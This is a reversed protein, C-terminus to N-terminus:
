RAKGKKKKIVLFAAVSCASLVSAATFAVWLGLNQNDGTKSYPTSTRSNVLKLTGSITFDAGIRFRYRETVLGYGEPAKVETFYYEGPGPSVFYIRGKADSVGQGLYRNSADYFALQAGSLPKGSADVKKIVVTGYPVNTIRTDGEVSGDAKIKFVFEEENLYYGDCGITEKFVYTGKDLTYFYIRGKSDTKQKFVLERKDATEDTVKYVSIECGSLPIGTIADTKTIVVTGGHVNPIETDGEIAGEEGVNIIYESSSALYGNPAKQEIISYQHGPLSNFSFYGNEDTTVIQPELLPVAKSSNILGKDVIRFEAGALGHRDGADYKFMRILHPFQVMQEADETDKHEAVLSQGLMLSEFVVAKKGIINKADFRFVVEIMGDAERPAFETEAIIPNGGPERLIGHTEHDMLTGIMKYTLGPVLNKYTVTDTITIDTAGYELPVTHTGDSSKVSTRISPFHISQSEDGIETHEAVKRGSQYLTEFAVLTNETLEGPNIQDPTLIFVMQAQGDAQEPVFTTTATIHNANSDRYPQGTKKDMLVGELEYSKGPILNRYEVQDTLTIACLTGNTDFTGPYSIHEGTDATLTTGIAPFVVTQDFDNIDKHDTVVEGKYYLTEFAVITHGALKESGELSFVVDVTGESEKAAFSVEATIPTGSANLLESNTSKDMLTAVLKYDAISSPFLGHYAVTDVIVQTGSALFDKEGNQGAFTTHIDPIYVTQDEDELDAHCCVIYGNNSVEEFAVIATGALNVGNFLFTLEVSGTGSPEAVFNKSATIEQGEADKAKEGTKKDMLTGNMTYTKGPQLGSYTVTDTLTIESEAATIHSDDQSLLTTAINPITITQDLDATDKHEAIVVSNRLLSEFATLAGSALKSADFIFEIDVSGNTEEARFEKEATIVISKGETSLPARGTLPDVMEGRITYTTGPLLNSYSVTDIIVIDSEAPFEKEDNQGHALTRIRPFHVTEDENDLDSCLYIQVNDELLEVVSVVTKGELESADFTYSLTAVGDASDPRFMGTTATVPDGNDVIPEGTSQDVLTGKIEYSKEIRLAYYNIKDDLTVTGAYAIHDNADHDLMETIINPLPNNDVTGVDIIQGDLTIEIEFSVLEYICNASTRLEQFIYTDYPFAGKENRPVADANLGFFWVGSDSDLMSEDVSDGTVAADNGNVNATKDFAASSFVGNADTVAIHSEGTTRSTIRFPINQLRRMNTGDVKVFYVDGRAVDDILAFDEDLLVQSADRIEVTPNWDLNIGYGRPAKTEVLAYTGYPLLNEETEALGQDNTTITTVVAGVEYSIGKIIVPRESANIVQIEAGALTAGGQPVATLTDSDLKQVAIGGCVIAEKCANEGTFSYIRGNERVSFTKEWDPNLLYGMSPSSEKVTYTGKPLIADSEAAGYENTTITAVVEGVGYNQGGVTVANESRNIIEFVAGALTADGQSADTGGARDIKQVSVGGFYDPQNGCADASFIQNASVSVTSSYDINVAYGNEPETSEETLIYRGYPLVNNGTTALGSADTTIQMVVAGAPYSSGNVVVSNASANIVNFVVNEFSADGYPTTTGLNADTKQVSLGGRVVTEPCIGADIVQGDTTVAFVGSSWESNLEYGPSAQIEILSYSGCPIIQESTATGNADTEIVLAVGGPATEVGNIMVSQSNENVLGFLAGALTADGQGTTQEVDAKQVTVRGLDPSEPIEPANYTRVVSSSQGDETINVIYHTGNLKYGAPAKSEYIVVSGLPLSVEEAASYWLADGSIVSSPDRLDAYGDEDTRVVWSRIPNGSAEAESATSFQGGYFCVAFEAGALSLNGSPRAQGTTEDYKKLLVPVPDSTPMDSVQVTTTEGPVVSFPVIDTNLAFGRPASIEKLFYNGAALDATESIGSADTTILALTNSESQADAESEYIAYIAGSLTYCSNNNSLSTDMSTKQVRASGIQNTFARITATKSVTTPEVASPIFMLLPQDGAREYIKIAGLDIPDYSQKSATASASWDNSANQLGASAAAAPTASITVTNGSQSVQIGNVTQTFNYGEGSVAGNSDTVSGIYMGSVSNYVLEIAQGDFSPTAISVEPAGGQNQAWSIAEAAYQKVDSWAYDDVRENLTEPNSIICAFIAYQAGIKAITDPQHGMNPTLYSAYPNNAYYVAIGAILRKDEASISNWYASSTSAGTGTSYYETGVDSGITPDLCFADLGSLIHNNIGYVTGTVGTYKNTVRANNGGFGIGNAESHVAAYARPVLEAPFLALLMVLTLMVASVRKLLTM